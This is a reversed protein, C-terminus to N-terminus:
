RTAPAADLARKGMAALIFGFVIVLCFAAPLGALSALFGVVPPGCLFGTYGLTSVVAMGPGAGHEHVRGAARFIIPVLNAIGFGVIMFGALIASWTQLLTAIGMGLSMLVASLRLAAVTGWRATLLDGTFRGAAMCISFAAFAVPATAVSVHGVTHAYVASWDLLVGESFLAVFALAGLRLLRRDPLAWRVRPEAAVVVREEPLLYGGTILTMSMLLVAMVGLLLSASVGHHLAFSLTAAAALGGSSWFGNLSSIIPKGLAIEVAFGQANISIDMLGKCMGFLAAAAILWGVNPALMLALLCAPFVLGAVFCMRHSGQAVSLKGARTMSAMAGLVIGVLVWSLQGASLAFKQQFSPILAAWTGFTMGDVLFLTSIAIRARSLDDLRAPAVRGVPLFDGAVEDHNM